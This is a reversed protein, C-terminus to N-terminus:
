VQSGDPLYCGKLTKGLIMIIRLEHNTDYYNLNDVDSCIEIFFVANAVKHTQIILDVFLILLVLVM